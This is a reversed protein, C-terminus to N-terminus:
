HLLKNQDNAWNLINIYLDPISETDKKSAYLDLLKQNFLPFKIFGRQMMKNETIDNIKKFDDAHFTEKAYLCFVSWTMYENFIMYPNQYFKAANESAWLAIKEFSMDIRKKHQDSINNVYNHSIESFLVRSMLGKTVETNFNSNEIPGSIFMVTQRFDKKQFHNTSHNGYALPSFTIRYHDFYLHFSNELWDWQNQIDIQSNLLSTQNQYFSLHNAYFERFKTKIAFEELQSIYKKIYNKNSWNLRAYEKVQILNNSTTFKLGCADMKLHAYKNNLLETNLQLVIPENEYKKFHKIVEQHYNSEQNILISDYMGVETLAFIIHVLEQAEPVEINFTKDNEIIYEPSFRAPNLCAYM